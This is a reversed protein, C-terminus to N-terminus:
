VWSSRLIRIVGIAVVPSSATPEMPLSVGIEAKDSRAFSRKV